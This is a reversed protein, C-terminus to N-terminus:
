RDEYAWRATWHSSRTSFLFDPPHGAELAAQAEDQVQLQPLLVLEVEKGTEDEFADIVEAIAKDEGAFFGKEWWVVLDAAQAGLSAMGLMSALLVSVLWRM